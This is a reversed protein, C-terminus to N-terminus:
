KRKQPPKLNFLHVRGHRLDELALQVQLAGDNLLTKPDIAELALESTKKMLLTTRMCM